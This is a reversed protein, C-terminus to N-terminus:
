GMGMWARRCPSGAPGPDWLGRAHMFALKETGEACNFHMAYTSEDSPGLCEQVVERPFVRATVNAGALVEHLAHQEAFKGHRAGAVALWSRLLARDQGTVYLTGCNYRVGIMRTAREDGAILTLSSGVSDSVTGAETAPGAPAMTDGVQRRLDPWAFLDRQMVVDTDLWMAAVTGPVELAHSLFRVKQWNLVQFLCSFTQGAQGGVGAYWNSLDACVVGAHQDCTKQAAGDFAVHVVKVALRRLHVLSNDLMCKQGGTSATIYVSGGGAASSTTATVGEHQSENGPADVLGVAEAVACRLVRQASPPLPQKILRDLEECSDGVPGADVVWARWDRCGGGDVKHSLSSGAGAPAGTTMTADAAPNATVVVGDSENVESLLANNHGGRLRPSHHDEEIHAHSHGHYTGGVTVAVLFLVVVVYRWSRSRPASRAPAASEVQGHSSRRTRM